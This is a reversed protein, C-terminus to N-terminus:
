ESLEGGGVTVTAIGTLNESQMSSVSIVASSEGGSVRLLEKFLTEEIECLLLCPSSRM